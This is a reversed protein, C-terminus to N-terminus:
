TQRRLLARASGQMHRIFEDVERPAAAALGQISKRHAAVVRQRAFFILIAPLITLYTLLPDVERFAGERQGQLIVDRVATFVANMM